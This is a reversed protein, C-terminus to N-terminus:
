KKKLKNKILYIITYIISIIAYIPIIFVAIIFFIAEEINFIAYFANHLIVAIIWAAIIMVIRKWNLLHYKGIKM